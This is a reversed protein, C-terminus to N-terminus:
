HSFLSFKEKRLYGEIKGKINNSFRGNAGEITEDSRM